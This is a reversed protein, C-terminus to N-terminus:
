ANNVFSNPDGTYAYTSYFDKMVNKAVPSIRADPITGGPFPLGTLPDKPKQPFNTYDGTRMAATPITKVYNGVVDSPRPRMYNFYWFTRNKGNYLKPVWVPGGLGFEQRWQPFCPARPGRFFPTAVANLCPNALTATYDGHLDNTGSKFTVNVNTARAYEAPANGSIVTMEEQATSPTFLSISQQAGEMSVETAAGRNGGFLFLASRGGASGPAWMLVDMAWGSRTNDSLKRDLAARPLGYNITTGESQVVPAAATVDVVEAVTGVAMVADVRRLTAPEVKVDPVVLKRFGEKEFEVRYTGVFFGIALFNGSADTVLTRTGGNRENVVTVKAGPVIGGSSDTVTGTLDGQVSQAVATFALSLALATLTLCRHLSSLSM